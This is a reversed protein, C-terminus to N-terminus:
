RSDVTIICPFIKEHWYSEVIIKNQALIFYEANILSAFIRGLNFVACTFTILCLKVQLLNKYTVKRKLSSNNKKYKCFM